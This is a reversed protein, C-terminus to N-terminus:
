NRALFDLVAANFALPNDRNMAHAANPILIPESLNKCNRMAKLMEGYRKPSREGTLLLIPFDFKQVQACTTSPREGTDALATALNDFLIQKQEPARKAWAGTGGLSDVFVRATMDIDGTALNNRLTDITEKTEAALKQSEPTEPLLTEMGSADELILTKIVEPYQKAVNLVVAGGRSHGLLHVKGLNMKKIFNAVDSAHQIISFGDGHGDWKEPYYHRLSVAIVHYKKSFEPEQAYWVRYDNLAGHVLVIPVGSGTERYAMDYGNVEVSKIGEPLPWKPAAGVPLAFFFGSILAAWIAPRSIIQSRAVSRVSVEM